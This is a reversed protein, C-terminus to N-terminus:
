ADVPIRSADLKLIRDALKSLESRAWTPCAIGPVPDDSIVAQITADGAAYPTEDLTSRWVELRPATAQLDGEVLILDTDCFQRELMAYHHDGRAERGSPIFMATMSPSLIGVAVAGSERHKYSDKGPVDLEHHHHTHKVTAVKLGRGSLERVLDCVLTTKGSNKRGVIHIRHTM